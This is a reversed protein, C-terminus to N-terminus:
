GKNVAYNLERLFVTRPVDNVTTETCALGLKALEPLVHEYFEHSVPIVSGRATLKNQSLLDIAIAAPLGVARAMATDGYPEGFAKFLSLHQRYEGNAQKIVFKHVLMAMDREGGAYFLKNKLQACFADIASYQEFGDVVDPEDFLWALGRSLQKRFNAIGRSEFYNRWNTHGMAGDDEFLGYQYAEDMLELFGRYRLTGRLLTPIGTLGYVHEYILSDRNPYGEYEENDTTWTPWRTNVLQGEPVEIEQAEIRFRAKNKLALLVGKPAWSFKYKFPNNACDPHPLGAGWSVFAEITGNQAHVEDIVKMASMHDIGPDFGMESLFLLGQRRADADLGRIHDSQYSATVLHRKNALCIDAVLDHFTFPVFSAVIDVGKILRALHTADTVDAEVAHVNSYQQALATAEELIHSVVTLDYGKRALHDVLPKSVMGAGLVLVRNM